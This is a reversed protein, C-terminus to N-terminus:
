CMTTRGLVTSSRKKNTREPCKQLEALCPLTTAPSKHFCFQGILDPWRLASSSQRHPGRRSLRASVAYIQTSNPLLYLKGQVKVNLNKNEFIKFLVSQQQQKKVLDHTLSDGLFHSNTCISGIPKVKIKSERWLFPHLYM